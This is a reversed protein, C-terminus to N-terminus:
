TRGEGGQDSKGTSTSPASIRALPGYFQPHERMASFITEAQEDTATPLPLRSRYTAAFGKAYLQVPLTSLWHLGKPIPIEASQDERLM